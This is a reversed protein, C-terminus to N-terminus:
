QVNIWVHLYMYLVISSIFSIHFIGSKLCPKFGPKISCRRSKKVCARLNSLHLMIFKKWFYFGYDIGSGWTIWQTGCTSPNSGTRYELIKWFQRLFLFIKPEHRDIIAHDINVTYRYTYICGKMSILQLFLNDSSHM